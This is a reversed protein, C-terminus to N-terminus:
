EEGEYLVFKLNVSTSNLANIREDMGDVLWKVGDEDNVVRMPSYISEGITNKICAFKTGPEANLVEIINYIKM